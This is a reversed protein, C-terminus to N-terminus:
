SKEPDNQRSAQQSAIPATGVKESSANAPDALPREAKTGSEEPGSTASLENGNGSNEQEEKEFLPPTRGAYQRALQNEVATLRAEVQLDDVIQIQLTVLQLLAKAVPPELDGSLVFRMTQTNISSLDSLTPNEPIVIDVPLPRRNKLGGIQGLRKAQGPHAHLFCLGNPGAAARCPLGSKTTAKCNM